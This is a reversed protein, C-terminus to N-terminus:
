LATDPNVLSYTGFPGMNIVGQSLMYEEHEKKDQDYREQMWAVTKQISSFPTTFVSATELGGLKESRYLKSSCTNLYSLKYGGKYERHSALNDRKFVVTHKLRVKDLQVKFGRVINLYKQNAKRIKRIKM